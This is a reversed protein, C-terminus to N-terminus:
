GKVLERGRKKREREGKRARKLLQRRKM